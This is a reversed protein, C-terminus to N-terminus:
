YIFQMRAAEKSRNEYINRFSMVHRYMKKLEPFVRFLIEAREEQNDTWKKSDKALLHRSRALLQKYSDGNELLIPCYL